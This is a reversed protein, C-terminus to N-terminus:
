ALLRAATALNTALPIDHVNCLRLLMQIDPEHPHAYLPDMLFIVADIAETAVQAAIQADGGHPGSLMVDVDLGVNERLEAGTHGTAVIRCELLFDRRREAFRVLDDKKRDHAIMAIKRM